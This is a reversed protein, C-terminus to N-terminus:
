DDYAMGGVIMTPAVPAPLGVALAYLLCRAHSDPMTEVLRLAVRRVSAPDKFDCGDDEYERMLQEIPTNPQRAAQRERRLKLAAAMMLQQCLLDDAAHAYLGVRRFVDRIPELQDSQSM